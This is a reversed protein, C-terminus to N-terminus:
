QKLEALTKELAALVSSEISAYSTTFSLSPSRSLTNFNSRVKGWDFIYAVDFVLTSRVLEIMKASDDDRISKYMVTNDIFAPVIHKQSYYGMCDLIHGTMELDTNTSPIIVHDSFAGNAFSKYEQQSEDFKALPLIGFDSNMSRLNLSVLLQNSFFLLENAMLKPMFYDTFNSAFGEKLLGDFITVQSNNFLAVLKECATVTKENNITIKIDSNETHESLRIGAGMLLYGLSSQEGAFGYQDATNFIQDGNLDRSAQTAMEIMKDLTWKGSYVLEYPNEMKNNEIIEKSFYNVIPAGLNFFCIDGVAAFQKGYITYESNANQNWWSKSLDLTPITRLDVLMGSTTLMPALGSYMQLAFTFADEGSLIFKQLKSSNGRDNIDLPLLDIKINLTEELERNRYVIADNIFDGNEESLMINYKLINWVGEYKTSAITIVKGGYDVNPKVYENSETEIFAETEKIATTGVTDKSVEGSGCSASSILIALLLMISATRKIKM